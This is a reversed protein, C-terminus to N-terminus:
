YWMRFAWRLLVCGDVFSRDCDFWCNNHKDQRKEPRRIDTSLPLPPQSQQLRLRSPPGHHIGMTVLSPVHSTGVHVRPQLYSRVKGELSIQWTDVMLGNGNAEEPIVFEYGLTHESVGIVM